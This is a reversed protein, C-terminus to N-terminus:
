DLIGGGDQSIYVKGDDLGASLIMGDASSTVFDWIIDEIAGGSTPDRLTWTAGTDTSTYLYGRYQGVILKSGDSSSAACLWFANSGEIDVTRWNIGSDNSHYLGGNYLGGIVGTGDDSTALCSWIGGPLRSTWKQGSDHSTYVYSDFGGSYVKTGDATTAISEWALPASPAFIRELWSWQPTPLPASGNNDSCGIIFLLAVVTITCICKKM